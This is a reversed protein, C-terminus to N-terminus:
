WRLAYPGVGAGLAAALAVGLTYWVVIFAPAGETCALAYAASALAGSALGAAAGALRLRVPALRRVAVLAVIMAPFSLLFIALPCQSASHGLCRSVRLGQAANALDLVGAAAALALTGLLLAIPAALRAGPRGARRMLWLGSGALALAYMMKLATASPGWLAPPLLGLRWAVAAVTALIAVPLGAALIRADGAPRVPCAGTALVSILDGTKM